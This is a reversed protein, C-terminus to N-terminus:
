AIVVVVTMNIEMAAIMGGVTVIITMNIKNVLMQNNMSVKNTKAKIAQSHIHQIDRQPKKNLLFHSDERQSSM